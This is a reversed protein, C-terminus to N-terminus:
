PRGLRASPRAPIAPTWCSVKARASSANIIKRVDSIAVSTYTLAALRADRPLLYSEGAEAIGHGSFYFLLLDGESAAQAVNSLEALINARTPLREPTDDTLLRAAAYKGALAGHVATVDDVCVHLSPIHPQNEYQNVGVLLAWAKGTNLVPKSAFAPGGQEKGGTPGAPTPPTASPPIRGGLWRALPSRRDEAPLGLRIQKRRLEDRQEDTVDPMAANGSQRMQGFVVVLASLDFNGALQALYAQALAISDATAVVALPEPTVHELWGSEALLLVDDPGIASRVLKM